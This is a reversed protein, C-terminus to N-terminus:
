QVECVDARIPSLPGTWTPRQAGQIDGLIDYQEQGGGQGRCIIDCSYGGCSTGSSKRLIGFGGGWVGNFNLDRAVLTVLEGLEDDSMYGFRNRHCEVIQLPQNGSCRDSVEQVPPTPPAPPAATSFAMIGTWESGVNPDFARARWFYARNYDLEYALEFSTQNAQEQVTVVALKNSLASDAGVEFTYWVQGVDGSRVANGITFTARRHAITTGQLPSVPIPASLGPAPRIRFRSPASFPGEGSSNQVRVRWFYETNPTLEPLVFRTQGGDGQAVRENMIQSGFGNDTSLQFGYTLSGSAPTSLNEVVLTVPQQRANFEAGSAPETLRPAVTPSSAATSTTSGGNTSPVTPTELDSCAASLLILSSVFVSRMYVTAM